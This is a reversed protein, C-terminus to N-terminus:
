GARAMSQKVLKTEPEAPSAPAPPVIPARKRAQAIDKKLKLILAGIVSNQRTSDHWGAEFAQDHLASDAGEILMSARTRVRSVGQTAGLAAGSRADYGSLVYKIQYPIGITLQELEAPEYIDLIQVVLKARRPDTESWALDDKIARSLNSQILTCLKDPAYPLGSSAQVGAVELSQYGSLSLNSEPGCGSVLAVYAVVAWAIRAIKM